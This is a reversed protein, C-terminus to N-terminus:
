RSEIITKLSARGTFDKGYCFYTPIGGIWGVEADSGNKSFFPLSQFYVFEYIERYSGRNNVEGDYIRRWTWGNRQYEKKM